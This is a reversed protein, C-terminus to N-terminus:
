FPSMREMLSFTMAKHWFRITVSASTFGPNQALTRERQTWWVLAPGPMPRGTLICNAMLTQPRGM